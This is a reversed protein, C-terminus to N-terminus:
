RRLLLRLFYFPLSITLFFVEFGVGASLPTLLYSRFFIGLAPGGKLFWTLVLALLLALSANKLDQFSPVLCIIISINLYAFLWFKWNLWNLVFWKLFGASAVPLPFQFLSSLALVAALGGFVPALSVLIEGLIPLKPEEHAVYGGSSSFLNIERIKAGAVLCALAHSFEHVIVGPVLFFRYKRGTFIKQWIEDLAFSLGFFLVLLIFFKTIM